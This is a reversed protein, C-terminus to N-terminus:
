SAGKWAAKIEFLLPREPDDTRIQQKLLFVTDFHVDKQLRGLYNMLSGLHRAEGAMTVTMADAQPTISLLAIGPSKAKEISTFIEEWPFALQGIVRQARAIEAQDTQGKTTRPESSLDLGALASQLEGYVVMLYVVSIIGLALVVVGPGVSQAPPRTYDLAVPQM